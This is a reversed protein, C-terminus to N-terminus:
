LTIIGAGLAQLTEVYFAPEETKVINAIEEASSVSPLPIKKQAIMRGHDYESDVLHITIGTEADGNKLVAEHVFNGYMGKGGYKPLLAPHVNLIAGHASKITKPGILKMYGSCVVLDIQNDALLNAIAADPDASNKGNIVATKVDAAVAWELAKCDPNNSILLIPEMPLQGSLCADTIARASSGNHSAFFALRIM